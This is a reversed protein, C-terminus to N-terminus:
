EQMWAQYCQCCHFVTLKSSTGIRTAKRRDELRQAPRLEVRQEQDKNDVFVLTVSKIRYKKLFFETPAVRYM